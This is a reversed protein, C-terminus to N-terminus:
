IMEKARDESRFMFTVLKGLSRTDLDEEQLSGSWMVTPQVLDATSREDGETMPSDSIAWRVPSSPAEGVQGVSGLILTWPPVDQSMTSPARIESCDHTQLFPRMNM